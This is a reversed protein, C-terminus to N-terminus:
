LHAIGGRLNRYRIGLTGFDGSDIDSAEIKTVTTGVESNEPLSVNYINQSFEPFNDNQDRIFIQIHASSYRSPEDVERAFLTFNIEKLEEYDLSKPNRVRIMFSAENVAIDPVIEFLDNPPDLFLRFTGNNGVDRDYVFHRIDGDIFNLPTNAQSNENVECRYIADGFTPIEDNVDSVIITVETKVQSQAM